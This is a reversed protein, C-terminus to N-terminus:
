NEDRTRANGRRKSADFRWDLAIRPDVAIARPMVFYISISHKHQQQQHHHQRQTILNLDPRNTKPTTKNDPKKENTTPVNRKPPIWPFLHFLMTPPPPSNPCVCQVVINIYVMVGLLLLFLAGFLCFDLFFLSFSSRFILYIHIENRRCVSVSQM